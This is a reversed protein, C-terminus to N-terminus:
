DAKRKKANSDEVPLENVQRLIRDQPTKYEAKLTKNEAELKSIKAKTEDANLKDLQRVAMQWIEKAEDNTVKLKAQLMAIKDGGKAKLVEVILDLKNAALVMLNLRRIEEENDRLTAKILRKELETRWELWKELIVNPSWTEFAVKLPTDADDTNVLLTTASKYSENVVLKRKVTPLVAEDKVAIEILMGTKKSSLNMVSVGKIKLLGEYLTDYTIPPLGTMKIVTAGKNRDVTYDAQWGIKAIGTEHYADLEAQAALCVGGWRQVPILKASAKKGKGTKLLTKTAALVSAYTYAPMNVTVGTAIGEAGLLFLTPLLSPLYLPEELTGDYNPVYPIVSEDMYKRNVLSDTAYKTLRCETYRSAAAGKHPGNGDFNGWNGKGDIIALPTGAGTAIGIMANYIAQDGHPHYNGMTDGAVKASKRHAATNFLGLKSMAFVARRHVPKMGDYLMPIARSMITHTGYDLMNKESLSGISVTPLGPLASKGAKVSKNTENAILAKRAASKKKKLKTM